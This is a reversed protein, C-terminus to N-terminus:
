SVLAIRTVREKSQGLMARIFLMLNRAFREASEVSVIETPFQVLGKIEDNREWFGVMLDTDTKYVDLHSLKDEFQIRSWRIRRRKEEICDLENRIPGEPLWNFCPSRSVEPMRQYVDIAAFEAHESEAVYEAKVRDMLDLFTDNKSMFLRMYLRFAFYGVTNQVEAMSRGAMQYQIVGELARHWRLVLAVFATFVAMVITTKNARSWQILEERLSSEIRIPLYELGCRGSSDFVADRDSSLVRCESIHNGFASNNKGSLLKYMGRQWVAYDALQVPIGPLSSRRHSMESEYEELIDRLLIASSMGDSIIHDMAMVLVHEDDDIKVLSASFLMDKTVDIPELINKWIIRQLEEERVSTPVGTLDFLSVDLGLSGFIVQVPSVGITRISTRLAEHREVTMEVATRLAGIELHGLLRVASAVIRVSRRVGLKQLNWHILQSFALPACDVRLHSTTVMNPPRHTSIRGLIALIQRRSQQLRSIQQSTIAGASAKYNLKDHRLCLRSGSELMSLLFAETSDVPSEAPESSMCDRTMISEKAHKSPTQQVVSNSATSVAATRGIKDCVM